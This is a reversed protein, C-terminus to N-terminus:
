GLISGVSMHRAAMFVLGFYVQGIQKQAKRRKWSRRVVVVHPGEGVRVRVGDEDTEVDAARFREVAHQLLHTLFRWVVETMDSRAIREHSATAHSCPRPLIELALGPQLRKSVPLLQRNAGFHSHDHRDVRM